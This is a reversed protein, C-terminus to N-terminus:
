RWLAIQEPAAKFMPQKAKCKFAEAFSAQNVVAGNTRWQGPAHLDTSAMLTAADVSSQQAWLKAWSQYFAQKAPELAGPQAATYADWALEIGAIDAANEERTQRGNVRVGTLQPYAYGDYQSGVRAVRSEWAATDAPTWWDRLNGAADINRGKNDIAHSLEHGVLAGYSGYHGAADQAMDLVPPQLMAATVILRNHAIDYALAPHQPLVNWVARSDHFARLFWAEQRAGMLTAHGDRM